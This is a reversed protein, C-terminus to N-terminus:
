GRESTATAQQQWTLTQQIATAHDTVEFQGFSTEFATADVVWPRDFQHAVKRGERAQRSFVAGVALMVRGIRSVKVPAPLLGNVIDAVQGQTLPPAAPLIWARGDAETREVLTAFGRAVDPLFHFTHPQDDALLIQMSKGALAPELFMRHLFSNTGGPGYYDSFRGISAPVREDALIRRALDRRLEGKGTAHEPSSESIPGGAPGYMYLNDVFVLRAGVAAVADLVTDLMRDFNGAWAHYPPSAALVVVDTGECVARTAPLDYLDAAAPEIGASAPTTGGRTVATVQHGRAALEATIAQGAGGAAGLVTVNM